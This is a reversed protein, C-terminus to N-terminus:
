KIYYFHYIIEKSIKSVLPDNYGISLNKLNLITKASTDAKKEDDLPSNVDQM